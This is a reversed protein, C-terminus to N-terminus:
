KCEGISFSGPGLSNALEDDAIAGSKGSLRRYPNRYGCLWGLVGEVVGETVPEDTVELTVSKQRVGQGFVAALDGPDVRRLTGTFVEM